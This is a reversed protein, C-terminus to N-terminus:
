LLLYEELAFAKCGSIGDDGDGLQFQKMCVM